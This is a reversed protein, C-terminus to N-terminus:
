EQLEKQEAGLASLNYRIRQLAAAVQDQEKESVGQLAEDYISLGVERAAKVLELGAPTVRALKARSDAPDPYREVLGRKELRDLIGSITMPDTDVFGALSVQSIGEHKTVAFLTRWQPLTIGYTRAAEEFRRKLLRSVEHVIYGLRVSRPFETYMRHSKRHTSIITACIILASIIDFAVAM